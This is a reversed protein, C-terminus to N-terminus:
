HYYARDHKATEGLYVVGLVKAHVTELLGTTKVLQNKESVGEKVALVVGDVQSSVIQADTVAGVPPTDIIVMDYMSKILSLAKRMRTTTLLESPNPPKPGSPMVSLYPIATEHIVDSLSLRKVSLLGSLGLQNDVSFSVHATPRRMDGDILLTKLGAQAFVVALNAAVTSKGEGTGSSTVVISQTPHEVQMYQINTRITRYQEALLSTPAAISFLTVAESKVNKTRKM